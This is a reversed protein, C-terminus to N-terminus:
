HRCVPSTAIDNFFLYKIIGTYFEWGPIYIVDSVMEFGFILAMVNYNGGHITGDNKLYVMGGVHACVFVTVDFGTQGLM